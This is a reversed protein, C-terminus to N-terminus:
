GLKNLKIIFFFLLLLAEVIAILESPNKSFRDEIEPNLLNLYLSRNQAFLQGILTSKGVGRPGFLFLSQKQSLKQLRDLM